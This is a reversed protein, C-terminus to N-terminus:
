GSAAPLHVRTFDYANRWAIKEVIADVGVRAIMRTHQHTHLLRALDDAFDQFELVTPYPPLPHVFGDFDTGICLRDWIRVKDDPELRDDAMIVDVMGTIQRWMLSPWQEAPVKLGPAAGVVRRDFIMGILGCSDHAMRVDEDSLNMGWAYYPGALWHDDERDAHAIQEAITAVGAYGMHTGVIPIPPRRPSKQARNRENYPRVVEDYYQQRALPSLHKIDVLTRRGDRDNLEEDLDLIERMVRLGLDGARELGEGMRPSQDIVAAGKEPITHAHGCVGNDFHHALTLIFVPHRWRKLAAIRDFIVDEPLRRQDPGLTLVHGGEITLVVALDDGGDEIVDELHGADRILHYCGRVESSVMEGGDLHECTTDNVRGDALQLFEYERVLEDWYDYQDSLMHGIREASYGVYLRNLLARLPGHNRLIRGAERAAGKRDGQALKRGSKLLTAGTALRLAEVAFPHRGEDSSEQLFGKEIPTFSAFTLRVRGRSLQAFNCQSYAGAHAGAAMKKGDSPLARWPHFLDPDGEDTSNRMRNFGYLSPHCHLDAFLRPRTSM